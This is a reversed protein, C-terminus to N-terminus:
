EGTIADLATPLCNEWLITGQIRVTLAIARTSNIARDRSSAGVRCTGTVAVVLKSM